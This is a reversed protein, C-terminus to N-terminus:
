SALLRRAAEPAALAIGAPTSFDGNIQTAQMVVARFAKVLTPDPAQPESWFRDLGAQHTLGDMDYIAAGLTITPRGLEIAGLGGTSNVCIVGAAARALAPFRGGDMYFVRDALGREAALRAVTREHHEIGHDLPHAKFLLRADAPAHRTFSDMVHAMFGATEGVEPNATLQADGPRQLVALFVPGSRELFTQLKQLRRDQLMIGAVYRRIHSLSQRTLSYRYPLKFRPFLPTALFLSFHFAILRRVGAPMIRGAHRFPAPRLNKALRRYVQPERPLSSRANVGNQELTIWHPRFYGEEFVHVKLGLAKAEAAAAAAHPYGAGHIILDTAGSRQFFMRVWAAWGEPGDRYITADKLGWDLLDGGNLIIRHCQAGQGRLEAALAKSFPGFPATVFVFLRAAAVAARM